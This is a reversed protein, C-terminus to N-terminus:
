LAIDGGNRKKLKDKYKRINELVLNKDIPKQLNLLREGMLNISNVICLNLDEHFPNGWIDNGVDLLVVKNFRNEPVKSLIEENSSMVVIKDAWNFLFEKTKQSTNDAGIAVVEHKLYRSLIMKAAVSRVNGGRCMTVINM